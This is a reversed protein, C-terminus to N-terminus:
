TESVQLTFQYNTSDGSFADFETATLARVDRSPIYLLRGRSDRVQIDIVNIFEKTDWFIQKPITFERYLTFPQCGVIACDPVYDPGVSKDARSVVGPESLYIRALLSTGTNFSTSNDNVNQKKTLQKSIVDIYPTYIMPAYSSYQGTAFTQSPFIYGMISTLDDQVEAGAPDTLSLIRFGPAAGPPGSVIVFRGSGSDYAVAWTAIGFVGPPNGVGNDFTNLAVQLALALRNPTYFGERVSVQVSPGSPAGSTGAVGPSLTLTNNAYGSAAIVNPTNWQLNAETLSIRTFYGNILSQQKNIYVNNPLDTDTRTGTAYKARDNTDITMIATAAPRIPTGSNEVIERIQGVTANLPYPVFSM